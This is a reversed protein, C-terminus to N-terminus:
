FVHSDYLIVCPDGLEAQRPHQAPEPAPPAEFVGGGDKPVESQFSGEM